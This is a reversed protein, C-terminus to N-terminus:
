VGPYGQGRGSTLFVAVKRGLFAPRVRKFTNHGVFRMAAALRGRQTSRVYSLSRVLQLLPAKSQVDAFRLLYTPTSAYSLLALRAGAPCNGQSIHLDWLLFALANTLRGFEAATINASLEVVVALDTPFLPCALSDPDSCLRFM